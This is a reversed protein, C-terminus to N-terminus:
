IIAIVAAVAGVAKVTADVFVNFDPNVTANAQWSLDTALAPWGEAVANHTPSDGWDDDRSGAEFTGHVRGRHSFTYAIDGGRVVFVCGTDYSPAGSVHFHGSFNVVGSRFLTLQAWGGVPVGDDFVIPNFTFPGLQEPLPPPPPPPPPEVV